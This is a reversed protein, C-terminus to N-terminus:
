HGIKEGRARAEINDLADASWRITSPSIWSYQSRIFKAARNLLKTDSTNMLGHLDMLITNQIDERYNKFNKEVMDLLGKHNGKACEALLTSLTMFEGEADLGPTRLDSQLQRIDDSTYSEEGRMYGSIQYAYVTNLAKLLSQSVSTDFEKIHKVAFQCKEDKTGNMYQYVYAFVNESAVRQADTLSQWYDNVAKAAAAILPAGKRTSRGEDFLQAAYSQVILASREGAEYKAKVRAPTLEPNSGREIMACFEQGNSNGGARNFLVENTTPDVVVFTPYASINYRERYPAGEDKNEADLKICVFKSNFYDGVEKQPFVDRAMMKCPGCWQTYFDIFVLKGEAKAQAFAEDHSIHRFNTQAMGAMSCAIVLLATLIYKKM